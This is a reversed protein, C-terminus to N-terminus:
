DRDPPEPIEDDGHLEAGESRKGRLTSRSDRTVAAQQKRRSRQRAQRIRNQECVDAHKKASEVLDRVVIAGDSDEAFYRFRICAARLERWEDLTVRAQDAMYADDFVLGTEDRAAGLSGQETVLDCFQMLAGLAANGLERQIMRIRPDNRWGGNVRFWSM